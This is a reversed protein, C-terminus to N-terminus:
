EPESLHVGPWKAVRGLLVSHNAGEDRGCLILLSKTEDDRVTVNVTTRLEVVLKLLCLRGEITKEAFSRASNIANRAFLVPVKKGKGCRRDDLHLRYMM